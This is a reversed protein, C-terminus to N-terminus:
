TQYSPIGSTRIIRISCCRCAESGKDSGKGVFGMRTANNMCTSDMDIGKGRWFAFFETQNARYADRLSSYALILTELLFVFGFDPLDRSTSVPCRTATNAMVVVVVVVVVYRLNRFAEISRRRRHSNLGLWGPCTAARKRGV